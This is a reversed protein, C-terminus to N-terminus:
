QPIKKYVYFRDANSTSASTVIRDIQYGPFSKEANHTAVFTAGTPDSVLTLNTSHKAVVTYFPKESDAVVLQTTNKPLLSLDKSFNQVTYVDYQYGYAYRQLGTLVLASILVILPILGAIRAYPNRPFLRYWYGLLSSLGMAMLLVLPLFTVSTFLPNIVLIPMLCALWIIILYSQTSERTRILHYVGLGIIIMSGLGFVPVMLSTTSPIWFGFYQGAILNINAAFNPWTTPVGLLSLGLEPSKAVGVILPTIIILALVGAFALRKRSLSKIIFRLHPHLLTAAGLAVLAYISLPTYLSLAAVIFFLVKWLFRFRAGKAIMTGLLLLWVPWLVYLISPTGNQAIFLFQGTTVAIIAALVAINTKFWRRLLLVLGVASFLALILSPLKISFDHVGFLTLSLQQLAYYPLNTVALSSLDNIHIGAAKIVSAKESDSIGGPLYLGAFILLGILLLAILGYGIPYRWRYIFTNTVDIGM